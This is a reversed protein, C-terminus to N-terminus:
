ELQHSTHTGNSPVLAEIADNGIRRLVVEAETQDPTFLMERDIIDLLKVRMEWVLGMDSNGDGVQDTLATCSVFFAMATQRLEAAAGTTGEPSQNFLAGRYKRIAQIFSSYLHPLISPPNILLHEPFNPPLTFTSVTQAQRLTDLNFLIESGTTYINSLTTQSM